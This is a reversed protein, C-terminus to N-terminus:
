VAAQRAAPFARMAVPALGLVVVLFGVQALYFPASWQDNAAVYYTNHVVDSFIISVTLWIGLRPKVFLLLAALPDLFTLADWYIKSALAIRNGYGYDWLWGNQLIAHVHNFTAALLCVAFLARIVTSARPM